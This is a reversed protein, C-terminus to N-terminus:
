IWLKCHGKECLWVRYKPAVDKQPLGEFDTYNYWTSAGLGVKLAIQGGVYISFLVAIILLASQISVVAGFVLYTLDPIVLHGSFVTNLFWADAVFIFVTILFTLLFRYKRAIRKAPELVRRTLTGPRSDQMLYVLLTIIVITISWILRRALVEQVTAIILAVSILVFVGLTILVTALPGPRLMSQKLYYSYVSWSDFGQGEAIQNETKFGTVLQQQFSPLQSAKTQFIQTGM